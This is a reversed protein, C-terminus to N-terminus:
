ASSPMRSEEVDRPSPSTYLLCTGRRGIDDRPAPAITTPQEGFPLPASMDYGGSESFQSYDTRGAAPFATTATDGTGGSAGTGAGPGPGKTGPVDLPYDVDHIIETRADDDGRKSSTVERSYAPAAAPVRLVRRATSQDAHSREREDQREGDRSDRICM